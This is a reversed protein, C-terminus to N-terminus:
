YQTFPFWRPSLPPPPGWMLEWALAVSASRDESPRNSGRSGDDGVDENPLELLLSGCAADERREDRESENDGDREPTERGSAPARRAVSRFVRSDEPFLASYGEGGAAV